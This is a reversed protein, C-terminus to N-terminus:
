WRALDRKIKPLNLWILLFVPLAALWVFGGILGFLVSIGAAKEPVDTAQGSLEGGFTMLEMQRETLASQKILLASGAILKLVAWSQLLLSAARRRKLLVIGGALLLGGLLFYISASIQSQTTLDRLFADLKAEDIEGLSRIQTEVFSLPILSLPAGLLGLSGLVIALIGIPKPWTSPTSDPPLPPVAPTESM